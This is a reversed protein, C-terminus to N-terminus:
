SQRGRYTSATEGVVQRFRRSFYLPDNYGVAIGIEAVSRDTETLLRCAEQMRLHTVFQGPTMRMMAEWRRRFDSSSLGHQLALRDFDVLERYHHEAHVRVAQVAHEKPGLPPSADSILSDMILGECLRDIRDAQGFSAVDSLHDLLERVRRPMATPEHVQWVCKDTPILGRTRMAPLTETLYNIYLEEWKGAPGYDLYTNPLGMMVCPGKVPWTRGGLVLDGQGDLVFMFSLRQFTRLVRDRKVPLYGVARVPLGSQFHRPVTRMDRYVTERNSTFFDMSKIIDEM